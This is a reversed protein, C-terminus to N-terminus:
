KKKNKKKNLWNILKYLGNESLDMTKNLKLENKLSIKTHENKYMYWNIATTILQFKM